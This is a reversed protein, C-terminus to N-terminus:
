CRRVEPTVQLGAADACFCSDWFKLAEDFLEDLLRQEGEELTVVYEAPHESVPGGPGFYFTAGLRKVDTPAVEGQPMTM